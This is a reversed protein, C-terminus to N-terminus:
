KKNIFTVFHEMFKDMRESIRDYRGSCNADNKHISEKMEELEKRLEKMAEAGTSKEKHYTRWAQLFGWVGLAAVGLFKVTGFLLEWAKENM